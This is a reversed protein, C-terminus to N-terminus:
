VTNKNKLLCYETWGVKTKFLKHWSNPLYLIRAIGKSSNSDLFKTCYIKEWNEPDNTFHIENDSTEFGSDVVYDCSSYPIYKLPDELNKNNMGSPTTWTGDLTWWRWTSTEPELFEGPLLGNFGSKIFKLRQKDSLFYSSPFRYWERGVCINSSSEALTSVQSFVEIPAKYYSFLAATRSVSILIYVFIALYSLYKGVSKKSFIFEFLSVLKDLTIAANLALSGYIIYMFREEKHPQITFITLWIFTPLITLFVATKKAQFPITLISALALPFAINFNLVLNLIYYYWPETGFINPGSEESAQIVNYLVINLPVIEFKRYSIFDIGLIVSLCLSAGIIVKVASKMFEKWNVSKEDGFLSLCLYHLGWAPALAFLFPWGLLGGIAIALMGKAISQNRQKGSAYRVICALAASFAHMAFSSPLYTVAAHSMGTAAASFGLYTWAIREGFVRSRSLEKWLQTEIGASAVAFVSRLIYFGNGSFVFQSLKIIVAHLAVYAWSRIGYEPSYEWTQLGFGDTLFHTPEWYNFM